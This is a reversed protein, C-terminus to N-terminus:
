LGSFNVDKFVLSPIRVSSYPYPDNGLESLQNWFEKMNGSINMENVPHVIKGGDIFLGVIGFSFDGTTSNSNGGLFGTVMIGHKVGAILEDLSHSGHELLVNAPSGTTPEMGLKKGYYDDILYARLIGKEIMVRRKATLGEGDFHRSALGKEVFPDDIVTLVDSAIKKGLMGDLFSSKQQLARGSMPGQLASLLRSAARNEVIMDYRGSQLKKQGIKRLARQAANKGLLEAAPLEKRFRTTAYFWDEPRGSEGDRVTVEAGASFSTSESAGVLGNSNVIVRENRSDSYGATSSIIQDSEAMAAAEIAAAMKVRDTTEVDAFSADVIQLEKDSRGEYYKPDPLSRYEDKALYKTAAVADAIFRELSEKKLDNTSQGSYRKGTYVQVTLSNRTAEQLKDLQKDRFEVDIQRSFSISVAAQDAGAKLARDMAWRALDLREKSNM